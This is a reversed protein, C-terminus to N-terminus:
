FKENWETKSYKSGVLSSIKEELPFSELPETAGWISRLNEKIVSADIPFNTVFAEHTRKQRYEPELSPMPLIENMLHISFRYLISGHFLLANRGRKQANGSFKLDELTLDTHGQVRLKKTTLLQLADRHKEMIVRNTQTLNKWPSSDEIRLILTYNLCGPGQLVTGGGSCRRFIPIGRQQCLSPNTETRMKNSYGLVIFYETPEWFRLINQGYGEESGQLLVEDCALNQLPTSFTADLYQM